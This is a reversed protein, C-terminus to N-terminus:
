DTIATYYHITAGGLGGGTILIVKGSLDQIDQDPNFNKGLLWELM